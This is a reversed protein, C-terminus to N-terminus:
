LKQLVYQLDFLLSCFKCLSDFNIFLSVNCNESNRSVIADEASIKVSIKVHYTPRFNPISFQQESQRKVDPERDM